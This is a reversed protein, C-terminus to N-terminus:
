FKVKKLEPPLCGDIEAEKEEAKIGVATLIEDARLSHGEAKLKGDVYIGEWDGDFSSVLVVKM